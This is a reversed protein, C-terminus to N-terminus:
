KKLSVVRAEDHQSDGKQTGGGSEDAGEEKEALLGEEAVGERVGGEGADADGEGDHRGEAHITAAKGPEEEAGGDGSEEADEADERDSAGGFEFVVGRHADDEGDEEAEADRDEAHNLFDGTLGGGSQLGEDISLGGGHDFGIEDEDGDSERDGDEDAEEDDLFEREEAEVGIEGGGFAPGDKNEIDEEHAEDGGDGDHAELGDAEDEDDGEEDGGRGGSAEPGVLEAVHEPEGGDDTGDGAPESGGNGSEIGVEGGPGDDDDGSGGDEEDAHDKAPGLADEGAVEAMALELFFYAALVEEAGGVLNEFVGLFGFREFVKGDREFKKTLVAVPGLTFEGFEDTLGAGLVVDFALGRTFEAEGFGAEAFGGADGPVVSEPFHIEDGMGVDGGAVDVAVGVHDLVEEPGFDDV